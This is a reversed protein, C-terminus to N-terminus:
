SCNGPFSPPDSNTFYWAVVTLDSVKLLDAGVESYSWCSRSAKWLWLSWYGSCGTSTSGCGYGMIKYILHASLPYGNWVAVLNGSVDNYTVTYFNDTSPVNTDNFWMRTGNGFDILLSVNRNPTGQSGPSDNSGSPLNLFSPGFYEALGWLLSLLVIAIIM